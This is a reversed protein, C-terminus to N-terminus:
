FAVAGGFRLTRVVWDVSRGDRNGSLNLRPRKRM